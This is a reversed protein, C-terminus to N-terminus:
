CLVVGRLELWCGAAMVGLSYFCYLNVELVLWRGCGNINLFGGIIIMLLTMIICIIIDM